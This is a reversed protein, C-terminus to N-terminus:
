HWTQFAIYGLGTISIAIFVYPWADIARRLRSALELRESM